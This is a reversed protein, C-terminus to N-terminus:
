NPWDWCGRACCPRNGVPNYPAKSESSSSEYKKEQSEYNSESEYMSSNSM